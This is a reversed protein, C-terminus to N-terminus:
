KTVTAATSWLYSSRRDNESGTCLIVSADPINCKGRAAVRSCGSYHVCSVCVGETPVLKDSLWLLFSEWRPQYVVAACSGPKWLALESNCKSAWPVRDVDIMARKRCVFQEGQQDFSIWLRNKRDSDVQSWWIRGFQSQYYFHSMGLRKPTNSLIHGVNKTFTM